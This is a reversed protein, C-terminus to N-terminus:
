VKVEKLTQAGLIYGCISFSLSFTLGGVFFGALGFAMALSAGFSNPRDLLLAAAIPVFLTVISLEYSLMLVHVVNDFFYALGLSFLGILLTIGKASDVGKSPLFDCSINSSISCLLSDATSIVAMFLAVMFITAVTPSTFAQVAEILVSAGEGIPLGSSRALIGLYIACFAGLFLTTGAIIASVAIVRGNKAAFCRQGMDQGILMFLLPLTLWSVFPVKGEVQPFDGLPTNISFFTLALGFLIFLAQLIDTNVVAKLGGMVTYFILVSWFLPFIWPAKVGLAAFFLRAAIGQGVLIFFLTGISLLSAIQRMMPSGYVKEFIEAITSIEMQRLKGGFGMGLIFLGLSTGLPYLLVWWGLHYAEEAAGILSGGGLQTALLTLALPFTKLGRGMLFYEDSSKLDNSASKGIWLCLSGLLGVLGIFLPVNM